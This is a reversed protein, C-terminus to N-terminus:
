NAVHFENSGLVKYDHNKQLWDVFLEAICSGTYGGPLQWYHNM